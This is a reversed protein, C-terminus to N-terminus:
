EDALQARLADAQDAPLSKLLVRITQGGVIRENRIYMWDSIKSEEVKVRDGFKVTMVSQPENNIACTADTADGEIQACWFHEVNEGDTLALKLTFSQEGQSPNARTQWFTELSKRAKEIAANMEPDDEGVAITKDETQASSHPAMAFSCAILALARLHQHVRKM